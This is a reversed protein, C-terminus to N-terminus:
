QVGEGSPNIWQEINFKLGPERLKEAWYRNFNPPGCVYFEKSQMEPVEQKMIDISIRGTYKDSKPDTIFQKVNVGKPVEKEYIKSLSEETTKTSYFILTNHNYQGRLTIYDLYSLFVSIGAGGAIFVKDSNSNLLFDGFPYRISTMFENKSRSILESTFSGERRVLIKADKSGWSAFSFAKSDLWYDSGSRVDLSIQMFMGPVWEKYKELEVSILFLTDSVEKILKIKAPTTIM